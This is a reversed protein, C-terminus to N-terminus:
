AFTYLNYRLKGGNNAGTLKFELKQEGAVTILSSLDLEIGTVVIQHGSTGDGFQALSAQALMTATIDVGNLEITMANFYTKPLSGTTRVTGLSPIIGMVASSGTVAHNHSDISASNIDLSKNGLNTSDISLDHGHSGTTETYDIGFRNQAVFGKNGSDITDIIDDNQASDGDTPHSEAYISHDHTGDSDADGTHNHSGLTVDGSHSHSTSGGSVNGTVYTGAGHNHEGVETYFNQNMLDGYIYLLTQSPVAGFIHFRLTEKNNADIDAAGNWTGGQFTNIPRVIAPTSNDTRKKSFKQKNGKAYSM